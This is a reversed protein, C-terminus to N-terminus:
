HFLAIWAAIAGGLGVVTGIIWQWNAAFAKRVGYAFDVDVTIMREFAPVAVAREAGDVTIWCTGVVALSQAGSRLPTVLFEWRATPVILQGPQSLPVIAFGDGVLEVQMHDSTNIEDAIRPTGTLSAFLEPASETTRAIGVEVREKRGQRMRDAASVALVGRRLTRKVAKEVETPSSSSIGSPQGQPMAAAGKPSVGVYDREVPM